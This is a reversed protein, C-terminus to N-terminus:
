QCAFQYKQFWSTAQRRGQAHESIKLTIKIAKTSIFVENNVTPFHPVRQPQCMPEQNDASVPLCSWFLQHFEAKLFCQFPCLVYSLIWSMIGTTSNIGIHWHCQTSKEYTWVGAVERVVQITKFFDNCVIMAIIWQSSIRLYMNANNKNYHTRFSINHNLM